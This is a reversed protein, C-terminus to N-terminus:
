KNFRVRLIGKHDVDKDSRHFYGNKLLLNGVAIAVNRDVVKPLSKPWKKAELICDVM